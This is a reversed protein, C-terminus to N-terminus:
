PEKSFLLQLGGPPQRAKRNLAYVQIQNLKIFSSTYITVHQEMCCM